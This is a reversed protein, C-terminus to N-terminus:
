RQVLEGPMQGAGPASPMCAEFVQDCWNVAALYAARIEANELRLRMGAEIVRPWDAREYALALDYITGIADGRPGEALLTGRVDPAMRIERLAERLPRDIMADLLSFMGMLFLESKRGGLGSLAALAECFAARILSQMVLVNPRDATLYMLLVISVWKRIETEGLIVLARRISDVSARQAFLASNAYRLLKYAVSVEQRILEELRWFEIEPSQIESLIRLYNVKYGPIEKGRLVV